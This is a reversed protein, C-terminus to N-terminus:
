FRIGIWMVTSGSKKGSSIQQILDSNYRVACSLMTKKTFIPVEFGFGLMFGFNNDIEKTIQDLEHEDHDYSLRFYIKGNFVYYFGFNAFPKWGKASVWPYWKLLLPVQIQSFSFRWIVSIGENLQDLSSHYQLRWLEFAFSFSNSIPVEINLGIQWPLQDKWHLQDYNLLGSSFSTGCNVGLQVGYSHTSIVLILGVVFFYRNRIKM